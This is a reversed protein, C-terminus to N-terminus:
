QWHKYWSLILLIYCSTARCSVNGALNSSSTIAILTAEGEVCLERYSVTAEVVKTKNTTSADWISQSEFRPVAAVAVAPRYVQCWWGVALALVWWWVAAVGCLVVCWAVSCRVAGWWLEWCMSGRSLTCTMKKGRRSEVHNPKSSNISM